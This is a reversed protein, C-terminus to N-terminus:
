RGGLDCSTRSRIDLDRLDYTLALAAEPSKGQNLTTKRLGVAELDEFWNM